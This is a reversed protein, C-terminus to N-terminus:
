ETVQQASQVRRYGVTAVCVCQGWYSIQFYGHKNKNFPIEWETHFFASSKIQHWNYHQHHKKHSQRSKPINRMRSQKHSNTLHLSAFVFLLPFSHSTYFFFFFFLFLSTSLSFCTTANAGSFPFHFFGFIDVIFDLNAAFLRVRVDKAANDIYLLATQVSGSLNGTEDM